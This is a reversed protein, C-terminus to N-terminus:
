SMLNEIQQKAKGMGKEELKEILSKFTSDRPVMGKLVMEEFFSCAHELKGSKCLTHVLLTYTGLDISVDKQFMDNLLIRLVKMRKKRCCMKLLPAYTKVDPKCSQKEMEILLMLADEESSNRCAASIMTNYTLVDPAANQRSMDEFLDQADKFRGSKNLIFILASYFSSDPLCGSQKMKEYVELAKSIEKAKGLALMVITYTTVNPPCEKKEMEDLIEEVKHFDKERCYAEIFSTYSVVDPCFGVKEMEEVALQAKDFQRAKCWGHILINFSRSNPSIIDKFELFVKHANEVSNEKVLADMLINMASVDKRLGFQEMKRFTEISDSWKGARCLRRIVKTITVLSVFGGLQDMERVLEWMLGFKRSKGLIDVMMNYCDSSHMYGTQAKAWAFVGFAPIWENSFRKLMREVLAQSVDVDCAGLANVVGDPSKFRGRLVRSLRDTDSDVIDVVVHKVAKSHDYLMQTNAWDAIIPLIFDDAESDVTTSNGNECFKIWSPLAPSEVIDPSASSNPAEATTCFAECFFHAENSSKPDIIYIYSAMRPRLQSIVRCKLQNLLM